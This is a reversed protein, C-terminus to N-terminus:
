DGGGISFLAGVALAIIDVDGFTLQAQGFVDVGGVDFRAGAIGNLGTDTTSAGFDGFVTDVDFSFRTFGVGGGAYPTFAQNDINFEYLAHLGLQWITLNEEAFYYDFAANLVVPLSTRFRADAGVFLEEVDGGVDFGLKPGIEVAIGQANVASVSLCLSMGAAAVLAIFHKM